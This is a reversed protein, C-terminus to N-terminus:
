INITECDALSDKAADFTKIEELTDADAKQASYLVVVNAVADGHFKIIRKDKIEEGTEYLTMIALSNALPLLSSIINACIIATM